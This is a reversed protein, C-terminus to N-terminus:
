SPETMQAAVRDRAERMLRTKLDLLQPELGVPYEHPHIFRKVSDHFRALERKARARTADLTPRAYVLDGDRFIPELLDEHQWDAPIERRRTADGPDVITPNAGIGLREEWIMDGRYTEGDYYRRVQQVGPNNVKTAQESLKLRNHWEGDIQAASLKYVGGLAADDYATALKTGVGWIAIQSGQRHLSDIITEDLSNSAVIQAAPFGGEDLIRRAEKSLYALDGSDLRVGIMEHGRERLERGVTVANHVGEITDYTDVLFVCNNPLAEAYRRFAELEDEFFMVWSHAHTGKVPIGYVKGALMNSTAACGGIFSARAVSLGGDPGQARRLGFELVPEDGAAHCVRAAKTAILTQFNIMNLLPTEVLQAQLVPGSVRVLPENPYVVRGEPIADVDCSFKLDALYELFASEFIPEDDNGRIQALYDLDDTRFRYNELYEIVTGLGCAMTYGSEFPPKRFFLNFVARNESVGTKWYGYAMTLQYLDTLLALSDDYIGEPARLM